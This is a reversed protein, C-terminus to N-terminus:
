FVKTLHFILKDFDRHIYIDYARISGEYFRMFIQQVWYESKSTSNKPRKQVLLYRLNTKIFLHTLCIFRVKTQCLM